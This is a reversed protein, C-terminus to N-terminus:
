ADAKPDTAAQDSAIAATQKTREHRSTRECGTEGSIRKTITPHVWAPAYRPAATRAARRAHFIALRRAEVPLHVVGQSHPARGFSPGGRFLPAGIARFAWCCASKSRREGKTSRTASRISSPRYSSSESTSFCTWAIQDSSSSTFLPPKSCYKEF